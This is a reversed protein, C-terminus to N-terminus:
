QENRRWRKLIMEYDDRTNCNTWCKLPLLGVSENDAMDLYRRIIALNTDAKDIKLFDDNASRLADMDTFKWTQGSNLICSFPEEISLLGHASNFAYRFNNGGDRYLVVAKDAYIPEFTYTLVSRPSSVVKEFSGDDIDLDGEVFLIESPDFSFATKLGLYLSYGSSLDEFHENFVTVINGFEPSLVKEVYSCLDDFKYGGVIVIKDLGRVKSVLHYLLTDKGGGYLCKLVKDEEAIGKNFRSSIGAVTIIACKMM